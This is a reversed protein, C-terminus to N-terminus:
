GSYPSIRLSRALSPRQIEGSSKRSRRRTTKRPPLSRLCSKPPRGATPSSTVMLPTRKVTTPTISFLSCNLL